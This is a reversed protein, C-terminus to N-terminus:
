VAGAASLLRRPDTPSTSDSLYNVSWQSTRRQHRRRHYGSMCVSLRVSLRPAIGLAAYLLFPSM